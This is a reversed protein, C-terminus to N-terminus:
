WECLNVHNIESHGVQLSYGSCILMFCHGETVDLRAIVNSCFYRWSSLETEGVAKCMRGASDRDENFFACGVLKGKIRHACMRAM